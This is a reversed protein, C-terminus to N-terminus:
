APVAVRFPRRSRMRGTLTPGSSMQVWCAQAEPMQVAMQVRALFMAQNKRCLAAVQYELDERYQAELRRVTMMLCRTELARAVRARVDDIVVPKQLYDLAGLKPCEVATTM